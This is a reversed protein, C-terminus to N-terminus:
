PDPFRLRYVASTIKVPRCWENESVLAAVAEYSVGRGCPLEIQNGAPTSKDTKDANKQLQQLRFKVGLLLFLSIQGDPDFTM